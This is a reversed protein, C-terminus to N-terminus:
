RLVLALVALTISVLCLRHARDSAPEMFLGIFLFLVSGVVFLLHITPTM